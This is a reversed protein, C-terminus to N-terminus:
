KFEELLYQVLKSILYPFALWSCRQVSEDNLSMKLLHLGPRDEKELSNKKGILHLIYKTYFRLLEDDELISAILAKRIIHDLIQPFSFHILQLSSSYTDKDTYFIDIYSLFHSTFSKNIILAFQCNSQFLTSLIFNIDFDEKKNGDFNKKAIKTTSDLVIGYLEVEFYDPIFQVTKKFSSVSHNLYTTNNLKMQGNSHQVKYDNSINDPQFTSLLEDFFDSKGALVQRNFYRQFILQNDKKSEFIIGDFLSLKINQKMFNKMSNNKMLEYNEIVKRNMEDTKRDISMEDLYLLGFGYIHCPEMHENYLDIMVSQIKTKLLKITVRQCIMNKKKAFYEEDFQYNSCMPFNDTSSYGTLKRLCNKKLNQYIRFQLPFCFQEYSSFTCKVTIHKKSELIFPNCTRDSKLPSGIILKLDKMTNDGKTTYIGYLWANYQECSHSIVKLVKPELDIPYDM